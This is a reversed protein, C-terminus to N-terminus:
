VVSKRDSEERIYKKESSLNSVSPPAPAPVAPGRQDSEIPGLALGSEGGSKVSPDTSRTASTPSREGSARHEQQDPVLFPATVFVVVAVAVALVHAVRGRREVTKALLEVLLAGAAATLAILFERM